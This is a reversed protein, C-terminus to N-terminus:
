KKGREGDIRVGHYPIIRCLGQEEMEGLFAFVEGREFHFLWALVKRCEAFPYIGGSTKKAHLVILKRAKRHATDWSPQTKNTTPAYAMNFQRRQNRMQPPLRRSRGKM